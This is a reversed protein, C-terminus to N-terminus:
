VKIYRDLEETRLKIYRKEFTTFNFPKDKKLRRIMSKIFDYRDMSEKIMDIQKPIDSTFAFTDLERVYEVYTKINDKNLEPYKEKLYEYFLETGCTKRNNLDVKVTAFEYKNAFLHTEHHDFVKIPKNLSLLDGYMEETLSLDTFYMEDYLSLDTTKLEEMLNPLDKIDVCKYDFSENTLGLLIIPSVGDLDTHTILYKKM